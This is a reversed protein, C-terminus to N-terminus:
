DIKKEFILKHVEPKEVLMLDKADQPMEDLFGCFYPSGIKTRRVETIVKKAM